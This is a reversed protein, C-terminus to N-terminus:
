RNACHTPRRTPNSSPPWTAPGQIVHIPAYPTCAVSMAVADDQSSLTDDDGVVVAIPVSAAGLTDFSEPRAAMARQAWAVSHPPAADVWATVAAVMADDARAVPGLLSELMPHLVRTGVEVVSGAIRERDARAEPSDAAAKTNMLVATAVRDAHRRLMSMAVYGGMSVGGIAAREIALRDLLAAVDDAMADISPPTGDQVSPSRGFGRLDPVIVRPRDAGLHPVFEDFMAGSLPFAHLLLLPEADPGAGESTEPVHDTYALEVGM